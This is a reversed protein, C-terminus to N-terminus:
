DDGEEPIAWRFEEALLSQAGRAVIAVGPPIGDTVFYDGGLDRPERVARREFTLPGVKVYAWQTGGHWVVAQKPVRSGTVASASPLWAVLQMGHRLGPEDALLWYTPGQWATAGAAPGVVRAAFANGRALDTGIPVTAGADLAPSMTRDPAVRLLVRRGGALDDLLTSARASVAAVLARGWRYEIERDLAVARDNALAVARRREVAALRAAQLEAPTVRVGAERTAQLRAVHTEDLELARRAFELETRLAAAEAQAGLLASADVAEAAVAREPMYVHAAVSTLLLGLREQLSEPLSIRAVGASFDVTVVPAIAEEDAMACASPCALVVLSIVGAIRARVGM